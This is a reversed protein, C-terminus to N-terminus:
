NVSNQIKSTQPRPVFNQAYCEAFIEYLIASCKYKYGCEKKIWCEWIRGFLKEIVSPNAPMFSEISQTSYNMTDFHIVILEDTSARRSYDLRAPVYCVHNDKLCHEETETRLITDAKFRFSLANFNRGSNFMNVNNQELKLVDLINFTLIENEYFMVGGKNEGIIIVFRNRFILGDNQYKPTKEQM